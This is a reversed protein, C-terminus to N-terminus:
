CKAQFSDCDTCQKTNARCGDSSSVVIKSLTCCNSESSHHVCNKVTCGISSNNM